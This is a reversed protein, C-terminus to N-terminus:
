GEGQLGYTAYMRMTDAFEDPSVVPVNFNNTQNFGGAMAASGYGANGSNIIGSAVGRMDPISAKVMDTVARRLLYSGNSVGVATGAAIPEGIRAAFLRSPSHIDAASEAAELAKQILRNVAAVVVSTGNSIGKAIGGAIRAGVSSFQSTNASAQAIQMATNVSSVLLPASQEVGTGLEEVIQQALPNAEASEQSTTQEGNPNKRGESIKKLVRTGLQSAANEVAALGEEFGTAVDQAAALGASKAKSDGNESKTLFASLPDGYMMGYLDNQQILADNSEKLQQMYEPDDLGGIGLIKGLFGKVKAAGEEGLLGSLLGDFLAPVLAKGVEVLAAAIPPVLKIAMQTLGPLTIRLLESLVPTLKALLDPLEKELRPLLEGMKVSFVDVANTISWVLDDVSNEGTGALFNNWAAGLTTLSGALTNNEEAYRGAAYATRDMFMEMALAVKEATTMEEVSSSLGKELAYAQLTTNNMAVGLNDMMTFNGKAAGAISEMAWAVDIGMVSAVDAARQMTEATLSAADNLNFGSGVFLSGMKNATALYDSMSLGLNKFASVGTKQITQAYEGFVAESGGMNQELEKMNALSSKVLAVAGTGIAGVVAIGAKIGTGIIKGISVGLADLKKTFDSDDLDVPLKVANDKYSKNGVKTLESQLSASDLEVEFVVSGDAM